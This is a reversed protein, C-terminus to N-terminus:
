LECDSFTDLPDEEADDIESGCQVVDAEGDANFILDNGINGVILDAGSGGTLTDHGGDGYVEDNGEDGFVVDSSGGGRLVDDGDGGHIEDEGGSGEITNGGSSGVLVDDGNGGVINEVEAVLDAEGPEGENAMGDDLTVSVALTRLRYSVPDAGAGGNMEDNGDSVADSLFQDSGSGGFLTDNGPGGQLWDHGGGALLEDDGADGFLHDSSANGLIRDDGDGGHIELFGALPVGTWARADIYDHGGRGNVVVEEASQLTIEEDLDRGLDIGDGTFAIQDGGNTLELIFGDRSGGLSVAIEIESSGDSEPTLGPAFRGVLIVPDQASRFLM